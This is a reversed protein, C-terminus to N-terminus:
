PAFALGAVLILLSFPQSSHEFLHSSDLTRTLYASRKDDKERKEDGINKHGGNVKTKKM